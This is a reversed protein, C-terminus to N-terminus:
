GFHLLKRTKAKLFAAFRAEFFGKATVASKGGLPIKLAESLAKKIKTGSYSLAPGMQEPSLVATMERYM